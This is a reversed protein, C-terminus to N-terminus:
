HILYDECFLLKLQWSGSRGNSNDLWFEQTTQISDGTSGNSM